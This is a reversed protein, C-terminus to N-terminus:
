MLMTMLESADIRRRLHFVLIFSLFTGDLRVTAAATKFAMTAVLVIEPLLTLVNQVFRLGIRRYVMNQSFHKSDSIGVWTIITEKHRTRPWVARITQYKSWTAAPTITIDLQPACFALGPVDIVFPEFPEGIQDRFRDNNRHSQTKLSM